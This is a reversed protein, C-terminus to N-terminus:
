LAEGCASELEAREFPLKKWPMLHLSKKLLSFGIEDGSQLGNRSVVHVPLELIFRSEFATSKVIVTSTGGVTILETVRGQIPNERIGASPRLRSHLLIGSPPICWCVQDGASFASNYAADLLVNDCVIRTLKQDPCQKIVRGEFLNRIDVLRAVLTTEPREFIDTPKGVQLTKGAYLVCMQDALMAAEDLDHTVLIIPIELKRTLQLTELRLKRRTVQDVSSFPEDLLLITPERALARALAVRQRQGGSLTHPLRSELGKLNVRRLLDLANENLKKSSTLIPNIALKINELVSLHPFLAFDQFVFGIRRQQPKLDINADTDLWTSGACCIKGVQPRYLGAISRLITTKGSGSPGVLALLDGPQCVLEADLPIPRQQRLRLKFGPESAGILAM